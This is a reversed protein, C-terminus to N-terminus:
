AKLVLWIKENLVCSREFSKVRKEEMAIAELVQVDALKDKLNEIGDITDPL